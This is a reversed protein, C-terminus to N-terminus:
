AAPKYKKLEAWSKDVDALEMEIDMPVNIWTFAKPLEECTVRKITKAVHDLEAPDVDFLIADHIQGILRTNWKEEVMIETLRIFSWLLCHFAAGQVPYNICDNKGMLGSCRFGTYMDIYGKSQYDRWWKEKWKSYQVFRNNWFDYEVEKIHEVFGDFSKLGKSILHDSLFSNNPMPVGQGSKWRGSPLKGWNHALSTACNKYYDGYFEPFVFGNKAAYRLTTHEPLKKDPKDLIFIQTAMDMHMDTSPDKIYKIMVPDKHYCTAIRVEIGSYDAELLQHGIRPYIAKRCVEMSEKDRKPINQFNPKDSSSRFTRAIHLNFFPHIFSNVQERIFADLYTDRLKKLKRIQLLSTLEPIKLAELAEEDTSGKGSETITAPPIKKVVYLYHALQDGSNINPTRGGISRKWHKYFNSEMFEKEGQEIKRTLQRKKTECYDLDIRMGQQEARSLALTGDHLLKYAEMTRPHVEIM